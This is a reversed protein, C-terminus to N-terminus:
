LKDQKGDLKTEIRDLKKFLADAVQRFDEKRVYETPLQERLKALDQQLERTADYMIKVWWGGMFAAIALAINFAIQLDM